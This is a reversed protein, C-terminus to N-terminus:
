CRLLTSDNTCAAPSCRRREQHRCRVALMADDDPLAGALAADAPHGRLAVPHRRGAHAAVFRDLVSVSASATRMRLVQVACCHYGGLCDDPRLKGPLSAKQLWRPVGATSMQRTNTMTSM